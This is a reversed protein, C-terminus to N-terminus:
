GNDGDKTSAVGSILGTEPSYTASPSWAGRCTNLWQEYTATMGGFASANNDTLWHALEESTKFAPSIPTGESCDEYMMLHTREEEPFHPMYDDPIPGGGYYDLAYELSEKEILVRFEELTEKYNDYLPKYRGDGNKPHEWGEPVRRVERGMKEGGLTVTKDNYPKIGKLNYKTPRPLSKCGVHTGTM